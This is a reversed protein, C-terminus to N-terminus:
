AAASPRASITEYWRKLAAHQPQATLELAKAFDLTVLTTIDAASYREGAVFPAQELQANFDDFFNKVRQVSREVLAPIQEYDHPGAIARGKLGAVKNRVGEMVAAFGELEARREWMAILGKDKPTAGLLPKEPFAEDLYRMIAPVEGIATGDDLVLTPVVRRPNIARYAASHQEGKSLDIGVLPIKLGKETLFIRVRRSNPSATSHYLKLTDPSMADAEHQIPHPDNRM